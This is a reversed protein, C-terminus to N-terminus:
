MELVRIIPEDQATLNNVIKSIFDADNLIYPIFNDYREQFGGNPYIKSQLKKIKNAKVEHKAKEAKILKSEIREISKEMKSFEAEIMGVLGKNVAEAKKSLQVKIANLQELEAKLEIEISVDELAIEKILDHLDRKLDPVSLNLSELEAMEKARLLLISDRVRLLPFTLGLMNFVENLQLWYAIEGGGGIYTLNPLILEQYVPRLLANPSFQQPNENVMGVLEEATYNKEEIQFIGENKSIRQRTGDSNIYFLNCERVFVQNHYGAAELKKNTSNVATHVFGENIERIAIPAFDQKLGTDNGDIIVLGYEAFLQNMIIRTADALNKSQKYVNTFQTLIAKLNEDSYKEEIPDTFTNIDVPAIEGVIKNEQGVKDWAIKNGFLNIHNIEEFDHDETAMWFVPVYHNSSDRENMARSLSIVQAVKYISYLPGTLLNLQHGTTITFTNSDKLKSINNQSFESLALNQNQDKLAKVLSTRQVESFQKRKTQESIEELSFFHPLFNAIEAKNDVLDRIISSSFGFATFSFQDQIM